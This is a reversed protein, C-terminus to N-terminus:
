AGLTDASFTADPRGSGRSLEACHEIAQASGIFSDVLGLATGASRRLSAWREIASRYPSSSCGNGDTSLPMSSPTADTSGGHLVWSQFLSSFCAATVTATAHMAVQTTACLDYGPRRLVPSSVQLGHGDGPLWAAAVGGPAFSAPPLIWTLDWLFHAHPRM